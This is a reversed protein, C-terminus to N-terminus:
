DVVVSSNIGVPGFAGYRLPHLLPLFLLWHHRVAAVVTVVMRIRVVVVAMHTHIHIRILTRPPATRTLIDM